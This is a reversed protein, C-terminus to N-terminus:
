RPQKATTHGRSPRALDLLAQKCQENGGQYGM